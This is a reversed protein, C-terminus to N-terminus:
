RFTMAFALKKGALGRLVPLLQAQLFTTRWDVADRNIGAVGTGVKRCLVVLSVRRRDRVLGSEQFYIEYGQMYVQVLRWKHICRRQIRAPEDRVVVM